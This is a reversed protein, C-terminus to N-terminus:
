AWMTSSVKAKCVRQMKRSIFCVIKKWSYETATTDDYNKHPQFYRRDLIYGKNDKCLVTLVSYVHIYIDLNCTM